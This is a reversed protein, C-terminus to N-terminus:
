LTYICYVTMDNNTGFSDRDRILQQIATAGSLREKWQENDLLACADSPLISAIRSEAQIPSIPYEFLLVFSRVDEPTMAPFSAEGLETALSKKAPKATATTSSGPAPKSVASKPKSLAPKSTESSTSSPEQM